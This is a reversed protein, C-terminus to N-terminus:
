EQVHVFVQKITEQNRRNRAIVTVTHDGPSLTEDQAFEGDQTLSAPQGDIELTADSATIGRVIVNTRLIAGDKPVTITLSPPKHLQFFSWVVYLVVTLLCAAGVILRFVRKGKLQASRKSPVDLLHKPLVYSRSVDYDRRLLALATKSEIGLLQAYTSIFGQVAVPSPLSSFEGAEISSLFELKIHTIDAINELTKGQKERVSKLTEGITKM